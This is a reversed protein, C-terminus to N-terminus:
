DVLTYKNSFHHCLWKYLNFATMSKTTPLGDADLFSEGKFTIVGHQESVSEVKIGEIFDEHEPLQANALKIIDAMNIEQKKDSM